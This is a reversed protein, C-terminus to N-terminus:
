RDLALRWLLLSCPGRDERLKGPNYVDSMVYVEGPSEVSGQLPNPVMTYSSCQYGIALPDMGPVPVARM